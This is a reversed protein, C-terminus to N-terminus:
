NRLAAQKIKEQSIEKSKGKFIIFLLLLHFKWLYPWWERPISCLEMTHCVGLIEVQMTQYNAKHFWTHVKRVGIGAVHELTAAVSKNSDCKIYDSYFNVM